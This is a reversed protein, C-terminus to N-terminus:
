VGGQVLADWWVNFWLDMDADIGVGHGDALRWAAEWVRGYLAKHNDFNFGSTIASWSQEFRAPPGGATLWADRATERLTTKPPPSLELHDPTLIAVERLMGWYPVRKALGLWHKWLDGSRGCIGQNLDESSWHDHQHRARARTSRSACLELLLWHLQRTGSSSPYGAVRGLTTGPM